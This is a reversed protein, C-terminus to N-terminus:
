NPPCQPRNEQDTPQKQQDRQIYRDGVHKAEGRHRRRDIDANRQFRDEEFYRIADVIERKQGDREEDEGAGQHRLFSDRHAQNIEGISKDAEDRPPRAITLMRAEINKPPIEPLGTM